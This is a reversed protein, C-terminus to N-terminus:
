YHFNGKGELSQAMLSSWEELEKTTMCAVGLDNMLHYLEQLRKDSSGTIQESAHLTQKRLSM